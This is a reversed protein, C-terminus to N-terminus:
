HPCHLRQHVTGVSADLRFSEWVRVRSRLRRGGADDIKWLFTPLSRNLEALLDASEKQLKIDGEQENADM